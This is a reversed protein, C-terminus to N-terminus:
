SNGMCNQACGADTLTSSRSLIRWTPFCWMSPQHFSTTFCNRPSSPFGRTKQTWHLSSLSSQRSQPQDVGPVAASLSALDCLPFCTLFPRAAARLPHSSTILVRLYVLGYVFVKRPLAARLRCGLGNGGQRQWVSWAPFRV